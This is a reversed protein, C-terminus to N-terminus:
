RHASGKLLEPNFSKIISRLEAEDVKQAAKKRTFWKRKREGKEPFDDALEEVEVPFVSVVCPVQSKPSFWKEYSYFGLCHDTARGRVGAEEWAEQLATEAPTLGRMPWGKPLIWRRTGRSTVLLVEVEGDDRVRYPLAAFQSRTEKRRKQKGTALPVQITKLQTM